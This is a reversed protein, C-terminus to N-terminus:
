DLNRGPNGGPCIDTGAQSRSVTALRGRESAVGRDGGAANGGPNGGDDHHALAHSSGFEEPSITFGNSHDGSSEPGCFFTQLPASLPPLGHERYELVIASALKIRMWEGGSRLFRPYRQAVGRGFVEM